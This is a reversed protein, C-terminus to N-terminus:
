GLLIHKKVPGAENFAKEHMLGIAVREAHEGKWKILMVNFLAGKSLRYTEEDFANNYFESKGFHITFATHGMEPFRSLCVLEM